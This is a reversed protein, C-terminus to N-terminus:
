IKINGNSDCSFRRNYWLWKNQWNAQFYLVFTAQGQQTLENHSITLGLLSCNFHNTSPPPFWALNVFLTVIALFLRERWKWGLPYSVSAQLEWRIFNCGTYFRGSVVREAGVCGYWHCQCFWRSNRLRLPRLPRTDDTSFWLRDRYFYARMDIQFVALSRSFCGNIM